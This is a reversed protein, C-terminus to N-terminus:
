LYKQLHSMKEEIDRNLKSVRVEHAIQKADFEKTHISNDIGFHKNLVRKADYYGLRKAYDLYDRSFNLTGDFLSGLDESPYIEIVESFPFSVRDLKLNGSLSVLLLKRYGELFLPKVPLNDALGGDAYASGNIKVKSYLIPLASTALLIDIVERKPRGNLKMYEPKLFDECITNYVLLKSEFIEDKIYQDLLGELAKRDSIGDSWDDDLNIFDTMSFHDWIENLSENSLYAYAFANVGGISSGSVAEIKIDYEKLANFVGVQYMGKAGGGSLVMAFNKDM